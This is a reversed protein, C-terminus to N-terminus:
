RLEVARNVPNLVFGLAARVLILYDGDDLKIPQSALHDCNGREQADLVRAFARGIRTLRGILRMGLEGIGLGFEDAHQLQPIGIALRVLRHRLRAQACPAPLVEQREAKRLFAIMGIVILLAELGERPLVAHTMHFISKVNVAFVRDFTAEDVDKDAEKM